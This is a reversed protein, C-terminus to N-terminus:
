FTCPISMEWVFGSSIAWHIFCNQARENCSKKVQNVRSFIMGVFNTIKGHLTCMKFKAASSKQSLLVETWRTKTRIIFPPIGSSGCIISSICLFYVINYNFQSLVNLFTYLRVKLSQHTRLNTQRQQSSSKVCCTAFHLGLECKVSIFTPFSSKHRFKHSFRCIPQVFSMPWIM